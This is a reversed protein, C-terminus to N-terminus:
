RHSFLADQLSSADMFRLREQHVKYATWKEKDELETFDFTRVPHRYFATNNGNIIPYHGYIRVTRHDHSISFALTQQHIESEWKVLRFLEVIGRVTM